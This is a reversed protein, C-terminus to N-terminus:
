ESEDRGVREGNREMGEGRRWEKEGERDYTITPERLINERERERGDRWKEAIRM